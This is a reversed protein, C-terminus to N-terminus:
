KPARPPPSIRESWCPGPDFATIARVGSQGEILRRWFTEVDLGLPTVAGMGTVVVRREGERM